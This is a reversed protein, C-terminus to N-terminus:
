RVDFVFGDHPQPGNVQASVGRRLLMGQRLSEIEQGLSIVPLPSSTLKKVFHLNAM